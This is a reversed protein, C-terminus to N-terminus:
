QSANERSALLVPRELTLDANVYDGEEYLDVRAGQKPLLTQMIELGTGFGTGTKFDFGDPLGTSRNRIHLRASADDCIFTVEVSAGVSETPMHKLANTILENIILAIPVSEEKRIQMSLSSRCDFNLRNPLSYQHVDICAQVLEHIQIQQGSKRSQLGYVIAITRIQAIAMDLAVKTNGSKGSSHRLLGVVGQLHNKIRHHIELVLTERLTQEEAFRREVALKNETIDFSIGVLGEIKGDADFLPQKTTSFWYTNGSSNVIKEEFNYVVQTNDLVKRDSDICRRATDNSFISHDSNSLVSKEDTGVLDLFARNVAKYRSESDKLYVPCPITNLLVELEMTKRRLERETRKCETIDRAVGVLYNQEDHTFHTISVEVPFKTGDKRCHMGEITLEGEASFLALFGAWSLGKQDFYDTIDQVHLRLLEDREYGLSRCAEQNFDIFGATEVNVLFLSDQAQDSLTRYLRLANETQKRESIDLATFIVGNGLNNPDLVTSRLLVDIVRGDKRKLRTEIEGSNNKAIQNYKDRGVRAYEEEDPYVCSSSKGILEEGTYGLMTLFRPSVWQFIRNKVVGIGVPATNILSTWETLRSKLQAEANKQEDINQVLAIVYLPEEKEDRVWAASVLGWVPEGDSRIYRKEIHYTSIEGSKVAELKLRNIEWDDPHTVDQISMDIMEDPAYGLMEAFARNVESICGDPTGTVMGAAAHDFISRFRLKSARLANEALKQATIDLMVGQFYRGEDTVVNNAKDWIWVTRGDKAIMRYEVSLQSENRHCENVTKLVRSRDEPHLAMDWMRPNSELDKQTYGIIAAAQPSIYHTTSYEDIQASYVLAPIQEVLTRYRVESRQLKKEADRQNTIDNLICHTRIFGNEINHEVHGYTLTIKRSGDLCRYNFESGAITGHQNFGDLVKSLKESQGAILFESVHRGIVDGREYGLLDEWAGNVELLLGNRDLSQYPLPAGEYLSQFCAKNDSSSQVASNLGKLCDSRSLAGVWDGQEDTVMLYDVNLAIMQERAHILSGQQSISHKPLRIIEGVQTQRLCSGSALAHAVDWETLIGAPKEKDGVLLHSIRRKVMRDIVTDVSEDIQACIVHSNMASVRCSNRSVGLFEQHIFLEKESAIGALEGVDNQAPLHRIGQSTMFRSARDLSMDADPSFLLPASMCSGIAEARVDQGFSACIVADRLTFIGVPRKGTNVLVSSSGAESMLSLANGLSNEGAVALVDQSLIDGLTTKGMNM